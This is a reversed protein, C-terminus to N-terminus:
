CWVVRTAIGCSVMLVPLHSLVEGPSRPRLCYSPTRLECAWSNLAVCLMSKVAVGFLAYMRKYPEYVCPFCASGISLQKLGCTHM